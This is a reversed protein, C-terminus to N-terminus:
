AHSDCNTVQESDNSYIFVMKCSTYNARSHFVLSRFLSLSLFRSGIKTHIRNANMHELNKEVFNLTRLRFKPVQFSRQNPIKLNLKTSWDEVM